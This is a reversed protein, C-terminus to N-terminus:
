PITLGSNGGGRAIEDLMIQRFRQYRAGAPCLAAFRDWIWEITSMDVPGRLRDTLEMRFETIDSLSAQFQLLSNGHLNITWAVATEWQKATM